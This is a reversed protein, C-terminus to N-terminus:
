DMQFHEELEEVTMDIVWKPEYDRMLAELQIYHRQSIGRSGDMWKYVSSKGVGLIRALDAVSMNKDILFRQILNKIQEKTKKM